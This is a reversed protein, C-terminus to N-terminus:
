ALFLNVRALNERKEEWWIDEENGKKKFLITIVKNIARVITDGFVSMGTTTQSILNFFGDLSSIKEEVDDVLKEVRNIIQILRIGLVILVVLLIIGFIYLLVPLIVNLTEM